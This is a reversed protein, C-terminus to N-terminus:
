FSLSMFIVIFAASKAATKVAKTAKGACACDDVEVIVVETFARAPREGTRETVHVGTLKPTQRTGARDVPPVVTIVRVTLASVAAPTVVPVADPFVVLTANSELYETGSAAVQETRPDRGIELVTGVAIVPLVLRLKMAEFWSVRAVGEVSAASDAM